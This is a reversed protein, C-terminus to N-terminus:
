HSTDMRHSSSHSVRRWLKGLLSNACYPGCVTDSEYESNSYFEELRSPPFGHSYCHKIVEYTDMIISIFLSLVVYIFLCIFIYLYLRSYVWVSFANEKPISNFTAFMDDGNILSFLCESSKMLTSFKMHYPGLIAWGAFTFGIYIFSACVLFRLMNPAAGKMTLILVNYTKFFGLYRLLGFWVLLNGTGLMLSCIDWLDLASSEIFQKMISGIVILCDNICIMVYWLNLFQLREGGTLRWNFARKVFLGTEQKLLQAQLLSRSCLVLSLLCVLIVVFNLLIVFHSYLSITMTDHHSCELRVPHTHLEVPFQSDHDSNDIEIKINFKFCDPRPVPGLPSLSVTTLSFNLFIRQVALWPVPFDLLWDKARWTRADLSAMEQESLFKCNTAVTNNIRITLNKSVHTPKYQDLCLGLSSNRFFIGLADEEVSALSAVTFEVFDHFYSEQYLAMDGLSPPYAYVERTPDWDKLFLHQFSIKQDTYFKIHSFRYDAFICLQVTVLFVKLIQLFLKWPLKKTTYYKDAPNM